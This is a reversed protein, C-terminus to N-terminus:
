LLWFSPKVCQFTYDICIFCFLGSSPNLLKLQNEVFWSISEPVLTLREQPLLSEKTPGKESSGFGHAEQCVALVSKLGM